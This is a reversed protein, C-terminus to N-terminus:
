RTMVRIWRGSRLRLGGLLLQALYDCRMLLFVFPPDLKWVFGALLGMPVSVLWMTGCDLLFNVKVDGGGRLVGVMMNNSFAQLPALLAMITLLNYAIARTEASVSFLGLVPGRIALLIVGLAAGLGCCIGLLTHAMRAADEARGAGITRGITVATAASAGFVFVTLINMVVTAISNAATFQSGLRGIIATSVSFGVGWLLENGTVPLASHVFDGALRCRMFLHRPRFGVSKERLCMYVLVFTCEYARAIVTGLAAGRVGLAPMGLNGFIFCYNFFVNVFFSTGYVVMSINVREVGRLCMIYCNSFSFLIFSASLVQLYAASAQIVQPDRSYLGMITEPFLGCVVTFLLAGALACRLTIAFLERIPETQRKGWYQSVLVSAGSAFGFGLINLINFPQGGLSAATIALDNLQGLMITDMLNVGLSIVNQLAIPLSIALVSPLFGPEWYFFKKRM